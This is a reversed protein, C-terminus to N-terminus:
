RDWQEARSLCSLALKRGDCKCSLHAGSMACYIPAFLTSCDRVRGPLSCCAETELRQLWLWSMLECLGENEQHTLKGHPYARELWAHVLEHAMVAGMQPWPLNKQIHVIAARTSKGSHSAREVLTCGLCHKDTDGSHKRAALETMQKANSIRLSPKARLMDM